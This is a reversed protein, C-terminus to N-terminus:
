TLESKVLNREESVVLGYAPVKIREYVPRGLLLTDNVCKLFPPLVNDSCSVWGIQLCISVPPGAPKLDAASLVGRKKDLFGDAGWFKDILYTEDRGLDTIRCVLAAESGCPDVPYVAM